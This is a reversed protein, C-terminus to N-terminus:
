PDSLFKKKEWGQVPTVLEQFTFLRYKTELKL